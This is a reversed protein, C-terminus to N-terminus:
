YRSTEPVNHGGDCQQIPASLGKPRQDLLDDLNEGAHKVGTFFLAIKVDSKAVVALVGTTFIGTREDEDPTGKREERDKMVSLIRAKTDDNQVLEAASAHDCM